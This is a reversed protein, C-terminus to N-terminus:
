SYMPTFLKHYDDLISTINDVGNAMDDYSSKFPNTGSCQTYYAFNDTVDASATKDLVAVLTNSPGAACFDALPFGILLEVMLMIAFVFLLPVAIFNALALFNTACRGLKYKGLVSHDHMEICVTGVLGFASYIMGLAAM